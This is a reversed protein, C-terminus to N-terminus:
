RTSETRAVFCQGGAAQLRSCLAAAEQRPMPGIRVRYVMSGNVEARHIALARGALEAAHRQHLQQFAVKAEKESPRVALQVAFGNSIEDPINGTEAPETDWVHQGASAAPKIPSPQLSDSGFHPDAPPLLQWPPSLQLPQAEATTEYLVPPLADDADLPRDILRGAVLVVMAPCIAVGVYVASAGLLKLHSRRTPASNM